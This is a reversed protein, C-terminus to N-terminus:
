HQSIVTWQRIKVTYRKAVHWRSMAGGDDSDGGAGGGGSAREGGNSPWILLGGM